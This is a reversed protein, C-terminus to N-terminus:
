KGYPSNTENTEAEDKALEEALKAKKARDLEIVGPTEYYGQLAENYAEAHKEAVKSWNAAERYAQVGQQYLAYNSLVGKIGAAIAKPSRQGVVRGCRYDKVVEAIAGADTVVVPVGCSFANHLAGSQYPAWVYPFIMIDSNEILQWKEAEPVWRIDLSVNGLKNESAALRLIQEYGTTVAKGAVMLTFDPLENMARILYEVGKGYNLMGFFLLSKGKLKRMQRLVLGHLVLVVDKKGYKLQLYEKQQRTHVMVAGSKKVILKQLFCLVKEKLNSAATHVEHLTVVVPVKQSLALLLGLNLSFKGFHPAVYQIHLLDLSEKEIIQRLQSKLFLSKFDVRYDAATSLKDGIKVVGIGLEDLEGCLSASYIAIGDEQEPFKSVMGIKM